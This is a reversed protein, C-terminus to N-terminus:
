LENKKIGAMKMMRRLLGFKLDKNGHVPVTILMPIGPKNYIHHSSKSIRALNLGHKELVKCFDKGSESKM